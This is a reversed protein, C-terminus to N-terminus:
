GEDDNDDDIRCSLVCKDLSLTEQHLFHCFKVQCFSFSVRLRSSNKENIEATFKDRPPQLCFLLKTNKHYLSSDLLNKVAAVAVFPLRLHVFCRIAESYFRLSKRVMPRSAFLNEEEEEQEKVLAKILWGDVERNSKM